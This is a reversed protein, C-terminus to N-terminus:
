APQPRRLSRTGTIGAALRVALMGAGFAALGAAPLGAPGASLGSVTLQVMGAASLVVGVGLLVGHRGTRPADSLVPRRAEVPRVLWVLGVLLLTCVLYWLPRQLWWQASPARVTDAQGVLWFVVAAGIGAVMHWLYISMANLNVVLVGRWFRTRLCAREVRDRLLLVLGAQATALAMLAISPPGNNQVPSGPAALMSVPYPGLTVLAVLSVAGGLLLARPVWGATPLSGTRWCIGLSYVGIWFTAYTSWGVLPVDLHNFLVDALVVLTALTAPLLLGWRREAAMLWPTTAVVVLYVALFWLPLGVIALTLDLMPGRAGLARAATAATTAVLLLVLSPLLLRWLRAGVWGVPSVSGLRHWSAANAYGGVFFFVPMVQFFWTIWPGFGWVELLNRGSLQGDSTTELTFALWHGVVVTVIAFARYADVSRVRGRGGGASADRSGDPPRGTPSHKAM